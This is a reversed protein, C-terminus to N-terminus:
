SEGLIGKDYPLGERKADEHSRRLEDTNDPSREWADVCAMSCFTRGHAGVRAGGVRKMDIPKHCEKCVALGAFPDCSSVELLPEWRARYTIM